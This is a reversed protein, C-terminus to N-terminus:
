FFIFQVYVTPFNNRLKVLLYVLVPAKQPYTTTFNQNSLNQNKVFPFPPVFHMMPQLTPGGYFRCGWQHECGGVRGRCREVFEFCARESRAVEKFITRENM